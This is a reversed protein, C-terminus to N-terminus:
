GFLDTKPELYDDVAHEIVRTRSTKETKARADIKDVMAEGLRLSVIRTPGRTPAPGPKSAAEM